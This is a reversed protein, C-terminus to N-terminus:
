TDTFQQNLAHMTLMIAETPVCFRVNSWDYAALNRKHRSPHMLLFHTLQHERASYSPAHLAHEPRAYSPLIM